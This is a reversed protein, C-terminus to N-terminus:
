KFVLWALAWLWYDSRYAAAKRAAQADMEAKRTAWENRLTESTTARAASLDVAARAHCDCPSAPAGLARPRAIM